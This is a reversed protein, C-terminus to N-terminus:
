WEILELEEDSIADVIDIKLQNAKQLLSTKYEKGDSFVERLQQATHTVYAWVVSGDEQKLGCKLFDDKDDTVLGMLNIQDDRDSQYLHEVGLASSKFGSVIQTECSNNISATLSAKNYDLTFEEEPENNELWTNLEDLLWGSYGEPISLVQEGRTVTFGNGQKKVKTIM